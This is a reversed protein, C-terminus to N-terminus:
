REKSIDKDKSIKYKRTLKFPKKIDQKQEKFNTKDQVKDFIDLGNFAKGVDYYDLTKCSDKLWTHKKNLEKLTDSVELTTMDEKSIYGSGQRHEFGNKTLFRKIDDYAQTYSKNPYVEKLKNTDLDFNISKKM